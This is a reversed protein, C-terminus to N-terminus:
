CIFRRVKGDWMRLFVNIYRGSSSTTSDEKFVDFHSQQNTTAAVVATM